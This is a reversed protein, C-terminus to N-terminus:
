GYLAASYGSITAGARNVSDITATSKTTGCSYDATLSAPATTATFTRPDSTVGDSWNSFTCSGYSEM